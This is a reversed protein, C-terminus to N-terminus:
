EFIASVTNKARILAADDTIAGRYVETIVAGSYRMTELRERLPRFDYNGEGPLLCSKEATHDSLHVHCLGSGMADLMDLPDVGSMKAQKIDLVFACEGSLYERMGRIFATESSRFQRVNEQAVTIGVAQGMRYLTHYREYYEEDSLSGAGIKQGHLVVIQAGLRKAAEMYGRYLAFGEETRREYREFLLMSELASTFPHVSRIEFGLERKLTNLKEGYEATMESFANVFIEFLGFGLGSMHRLAKETEMPYLSAASIGTKM